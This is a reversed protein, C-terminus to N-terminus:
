RVRPRLPRFLKIPPMMKGVRGRGPKNYAGPLNLRPPRYHGPAPMKPTAMKRPKPM